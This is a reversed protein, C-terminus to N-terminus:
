RRVKSADAIDTVLSKRLTSGDEFTLDDVKWAGGENRFHFRLPAGQDGDPGRGPSFVITAEIRGKSRLKYRQSLLKATANDNDQCQCYWDFGNLGYLEESQQMLKGWRGILADLTQTYPPEYGGTSAGAENEPAYSGDDAAESIPQMYSAYINSVIQRVVAEDQHAPQKAAAGQSPLACCLSLAAIVRAKGARVM